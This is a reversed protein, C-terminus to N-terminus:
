ALMVWPTGDGFEKVAFVYRARETRSQTMGAGKSFQPMTGHINKVIGDSFSRIDSRTDRSM